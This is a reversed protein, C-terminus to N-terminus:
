FGRRYCGVGATGFGRGFFFLSLPLTKKFIELGQGGLRKGSEIEADASVAAAAASVAVTVAAVAM